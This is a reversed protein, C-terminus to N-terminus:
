VKMARTEIQPVSRAKGSPLDTRFNDSRGGPKLVRIGPMGMESAPRMKWGVVEYAVELLAGLKRQTINGALWVEVTYTGSCNGYHHWRHGAPRAAATVALHVLAPQGAADHNLTRLSSAEGLGVAVGEFQHRFLGQLPAAGYSGTFILNTVIGSLIVGSLGLRPAALLGLTVFAVGEGLYVHVEDGANAQDYLGIRRSM